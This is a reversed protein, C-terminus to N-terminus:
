GIVSHLCVYENVCKLEQKQNLKMYRVMQKACFESHLKIDSASYANFMSCVSFEVFFFFSLYLVNNNPKKEIWHRVLIILTWKIYQSYASSSSSFFCFTIKMHLLLVNCYMTQANLWNGIFLLILLFFHFSELTFVLLTFVKFFDSFFWKEKQTSLPFLPKEEFFIRYPPKAYFLLLRFIKHNLEFVAFKKRRESWVNCVSCM